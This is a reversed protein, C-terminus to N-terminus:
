AGAVRQRRRACRGHGHRATAPALDLAASLIDWRKQLATIRANRSTIERAITGACLTEQLERIRACVTAKAYLRAAGGRRSNDSYGASVYAKTANVPVV